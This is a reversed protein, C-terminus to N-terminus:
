VEEPEDIIRVKRISTLGQVHEYAKDELIKEEIGYLLHLRELEQACPMDRYLAQELRALRQIPVGLFEAARYQKMGLADRCARILVSFNQNINEQVAKHVASEILFLREIDM